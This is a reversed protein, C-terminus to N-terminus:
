RMAQPTPLKPMFRGAARRAAASTARMEAGSGLTVSALSGVFDIYERGDADYLALVPQFWGPVADAIQPKSATKAVEFTYRNQEILDYSKESIVPAILIDRPDAIKM